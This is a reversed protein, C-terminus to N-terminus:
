RGHRSPAGLEVDLEVTAKDRRVKVRVVDGVYRTALFVRLDDFDEVKQGDVALVIDGKEMGAKEAGSGRSFGAVTLLGDSSDLMIGLKADEPAQVESPFIIFDAMGLELPEEPDPLIIAYDKGIRRYVRKPIGAGYALHGSGALVVMHYDPHDTLFNAISEAMTEDWLIQAQHFYEFVQPISEGELTAQHMEFVSRLREKYPEDDLNLEDPLRGKEEPSLSELGENAVKRVLEDDQNLAVVPIKNARAYQLIDEYLHYNFRWTSFYHSEKLFTQIETEGSIHDDLSKQYRRQFMEMGIALKPHHRHLAQIVELQVLHDGYRDHKEGVYVITKDAVRFAIESLPLVAELAIGTAPQPVELQIGRDSVTTEKEMNKGGSFQLRSYQGYHLLKRGTGNVEDANEALVLGLVRGPNLINKRIQLFLGTPNEPAGPFFSKLETQPGLLLFSKEGLNSHDIEEASTTKFGQSQLAQILTEYIEKNAEPVLITRTPDGLLRSLVASREPPDLRRFLDYDPDVIMKQPREQLPLSLTQAAASIPLIHKEQKNETHIVVPIFVPMTSNAVRIEFQLDYGSGPRNLRIKSLNVEMSGKNNLWFAFFGSLDEGATNSFIGELDQWSTIRFRQKQALQKLGERFAKDGARNKLMHFFMATKGYGVARLARDEESVFERISIENDQHVYSEYNEVIQKRHQWGKEKLADYHHDALYSALGESWNGKEYDVYVSNGFWSHLIEHGLSTEPIFPLKLIQRGLLTFTPMGYGTPLINEVVAFRRFPYPGLMDEYMGLYKKIYALYLGSLDKDEPLLYTAVEVDGHRDKNVVYPAMMFHIHPVPHPFHFVELRGEGTEHTTITEAESVAHFGKPVRAELSFHALEAEAAPYWGDLLFAGKAGIINEVGSRVDDSFVGEYEMRVHTRDPHLPLNIRGDEVKAVAAEGNISFKTIRLGKGALITRVSQPITANMTGYIRHKPLDFSITIRHQPLSAARGLSSLCLVGAIVLCGILAFLIKQISAM